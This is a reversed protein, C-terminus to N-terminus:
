IHILSLSHADGFMESMNVVKSVNWGGINRNFAHSHFFMRHMNTVNSVDWRSIDDNFTIMWTFLESMDTVSSVDWDSINGYLKEAEVLNTYWLHVAQRIDDDTRWLKKSRMLPSYMGKIEAPHSVFGFKMGMKPGIQKLSRIYNYNEETIPNVEEPPTTAM